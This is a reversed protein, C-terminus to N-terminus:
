AALLLDLIPFHFAKKWCTRIPSIVHGHSFYHRTQNKTNSSTITAHSAETIGLRRRLQLRLVQYDAGDVCIVGESTESISHVVRRTAPLASDRFGAGVETGGVEGGAEVEM